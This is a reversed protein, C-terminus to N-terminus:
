TVLHVIFLFNFFLYKAPSLQAGRWPPIDSHPSILVHMRLSSVLHSIDTKNRAAKREPTFGWGAWRIRVGPGTQVRHHVPFGRAGAPLRVTIGRDEVWM